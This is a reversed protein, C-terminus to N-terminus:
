EGYKKLLDGVAEEILSNLSKGTEIGIHKLRKKVGSELRVITPKKEQTRRHGDLSIHDQRITRMLEV